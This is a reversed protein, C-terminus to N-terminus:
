RELTLRGDPREWLAVDPYQDGNVEDVVNQIYEPRIHDFGSDRYAGASDLVDDRSIIVAQGKHLGGMWQAVKGIIM